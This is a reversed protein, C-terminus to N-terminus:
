PDLYKWLDGKEGTEEDGFRRKLVAIPYEEIESVWRSSGPGNCMEWCLDFGGIGSFLSGLTARRTYTASIRRLLWFWFPLAISNGLAKYRPSDAEKHKKGKSDVWEGIDTWGIEKIIQNIRSKSIGYVDALQRQTFDTYHYLYAIEDKLDPDLKTAKNDLGTKFLGDEAAKKTNEAPTLLQLNEIRNDLKNNNIHDICYGDPIIGHQSIWIIRHVRCQLKTGGNRISVVKYGSLETGKLEKPENYPIGGPGRTGYVKGTKPDAIINREALNFAIYEDKTMEEVNWKKEQPFGQLKECEIPTLRRVIGVGKSDRACLSGVVCKGEDVYQNGVGKSDRACVANPGKSVITQTTEVSVSPNYQANKGQNFYARDLSYTCPVHDSDTAASNLSKVQEESEAQNYCDVGYSLIAQADHMTDLTNAIPKMSINCMQGNGVCVVEREVNQREGCGKYYSADLTGSIGEGSSNVVLPQNNGGTGLNTALTSCVEGLPKYRSDQTHNEFVEQLVFNREPDAMMQSHVAGRGDQACRAAATDSFVEQKILIPTRADSNDSVNLTDATETQEWKQPQEANQPHGQKRYVIATGGQYHDPSAGNSDLTRASDEEVYGSNPNASKMVNSNYAPIGYTMVYSEGGGGRCEGSYLSEAIGDQPQIHKSQVDWPNLCMQNNLTSLAGTRENQILIGKGGGPKGAREQFSIAGGSQVTLAMALMEPLKKGRRKARDLIGQCARQSLNYKPNPNQELINTLCSKRQAGGVLTPSWLYEKGGNPYEGINLMTPEGPLVGDEWKMTYNGPKEGSVKKLCLCMLPMPNQSESSKRSSPKSTREKTPVSHELSMKGSWGDLDFISVQGDMEASM